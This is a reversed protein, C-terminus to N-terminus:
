KGDRGRERRRSQSQDSAEEELQLEPLRYTQAGCCCALLGAAIAGVLTQEVGSSVNWPQASQPTLSPHSPSSTTAPRVRRASQMEDVTAGTRM